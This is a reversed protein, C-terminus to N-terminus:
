VGFSLLVPESEIKGFLRIKSRVEELMFPAIARKISDFANPVNCISFMTLSKSFENQQQFCKDCFIKIIHKYREFASITFTDLNVVVELYGYQSRFDRFVQIIYDSIIEFMEPTAYSKFIPYDIYIIKSTDTLILRCTKHLLAEIPLRTMIQNACEFKQSKKFFINKTSSSYFEEKLKDIENELDEFTDLSPEM